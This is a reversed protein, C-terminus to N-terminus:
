PKNRFVHCILAASTKSFTEIRLQEVKLNTGARGVISEPLGPYLLLGAFREAIYRPSGPHNSLIHFLFESPEMNGTFEAGPIDRFITYSGGDHLGAEYDIAIVEEGTEPDTGSSELYGSAYATAAVIGEEDYNPIGSVPDIAGLTFLELLERAYNQNPRGVHNDKNDLWFAMVPDYYMADALDAFSGVAYQKLLNWHLPLGYHYFGSFSFGIANLNTAFHASLQFMMWEIFPDRTYIFRYMQGVQVAYSTWIRGVTFEDYHFDLEAWSLADQELQQQETSNMLGDVLADVLATLGQTQGIQRLESSGGFAVKNLLYAIEIGSIDEKYPVLLDASGSFDGPGSGSGSQDGGCNLRYQNVRDLKRQLKDRKKRKKNAARTKGREELRTIQQDLRAIRAELKTTSIPKWRAKPKLRRTKKSLRGLTKEASDATHCIFRKGLAEFQDINKRTIKLAQAETGFFVLFAALSIVFGVWRMFLWPLM